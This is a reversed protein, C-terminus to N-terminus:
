RERVWKITFRLTEGGEIQLETHHSGDTANDFRLACAGDEGLAEAELVRVPAFLRFAARADWRALEREISADTDCALGMAELLRLATDQSTVRLQGDITHYSPVIGVREALARLAERVIGESM